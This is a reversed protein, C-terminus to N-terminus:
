QDADCAERGLPVTRYTDGGEDRHPEGPPETCPTEDGDRVVHCFGGSGTPWALERRLRAVEAQAKELAACVAEYAEATPYIGVSPTVIHLEPM